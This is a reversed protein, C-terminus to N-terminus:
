FSTQTAEQLSYNKGFQEARFPNNALTKLTFFYNKIIKFKLKYEGVIETMMLDDPKLEQIKDHQLVVLYQL